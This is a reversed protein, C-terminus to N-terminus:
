LNTNRNDEKIRRAKETRAARAKVARAKRQQPTLADASAKGGQSALLKRAQKLPDVEFVEVTVPGENWQHRPFYRGWVMCGGGIYRAMKPEIGCRDCIEGQLYTRKM